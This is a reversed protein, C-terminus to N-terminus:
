RRQSQEITTRILRIRSDWWSFDHYESIQAAREMEDLAVLAESGSSRPDASSGDGLVAAAPLAHIEYDPPPLRRVGPEGLTIEIPSIVPISTLM